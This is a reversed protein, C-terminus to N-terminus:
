LFAVEKLRGPGAPSHTNWRVEYKQSVVLHEATDQEYTPSKRWVSVVDKVGEM